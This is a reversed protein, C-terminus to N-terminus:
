VYEDAGDLVSSHPGDLRVCTAAQKLLLRRHSDVQHGDFVRSQHGFAYYSLKGSPGSYCTLELSHM